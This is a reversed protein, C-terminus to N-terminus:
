VIKPIQPLKECIMGILFFSDYTVSEPALAYERTVTILNEIKLESEFVKYGDKKVKVKYNGVPLQFEIAGNKDSEIEKFITNNTGIVSIESKYVNQKSVSDTITLVVTALTKVPTPTTIVPPFLIPNTRIFRKIGLIANPVQPAPTPTPTPNIIPMMKITPAMTTKIWPQKISDMAKYIPASAIPKIPPTTVPTPELMNSDNQETKTSYYKVNNSELTEKNKIAKIFRVNTNANTFLQNKMIIPGFHILQDINNVVTESISPDINIKLNKILILKKPFAPLLFNNSISQGDSIPQTGNWKFYESTLTPLSFWNRLMTVISFELEIGIINREDYDISIVEDPFADKENKATEYLQDLEQKGISLKIWGSDNSMFDYPVFNIDHYSELSQIGTKKSLEMTNRSNTLNALFIELGDKSNLQKIAEEILKKYGLLKHDVALKEKKLLIVNLKELWIHKEDESAADDYAAVHQEWERVLTEYLGLYKDYAKKEKTAKGKADYLVQQATENVTAISDPNLGQESNILNGYVTFLTNAPNVDWFTDSTPLSNLQFSLDQKKLLGEGKLPDDLLIQPLLLKIEDNEYVRLSPCILAMESSNSSQTKYYEKIKQFLATYYKM